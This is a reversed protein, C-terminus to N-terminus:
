KKLASPQPLRYKAMEIEAEFFSVNDYCFYEPVKYAGTKKPDVGPGVPQSAPHIVASSLGNVEPITSNTPPSSFSPSENQTSGESYFRTAIRLTNSKLVGFRNMKNCLRIM